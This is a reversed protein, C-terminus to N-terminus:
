HVEAHTPPETGLGAALTKAEDAMERIAEGIPRFGEPQMQNIREANLTQRGGAHGELWTNADKTALHAPPSAPQDNLAARRGDEYHRQATTEKEGFLDLQKGIGLWRAIRHTREVDNKVAEIGEDSELQIALKIDKKPIGEKKAVEYAKAVAAKANKEAELLPVIKRKHSFLLAQRQQDSLAEPTPKTHGNGKKAKDKKTRERKVTQTQKKKAM